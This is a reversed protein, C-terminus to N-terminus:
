RVETDLPSVPRRRSGFTAPLGRLLVGMTEHLRGATTPPETPPLALAIGALDVFHTTTQGLGELEQEIAVARARIGPDSREYVPQSMLIYEPVPVTNKLMRHATIVDVGVIKTRDRITQTAVEGAHAVFKVRLNGAQRCADCSCMNHGVMWAQRAHFARHMALALATAADGTGHPLYLFAADGEIEVLRLPEAADVIAELLRGTIDQSHALSLRHLRMFRTYGGIDAIVLLAPEVAM